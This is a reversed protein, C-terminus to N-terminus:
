ECYNVSNKLSIIKFLFNKSIKINSNTGKLIGLM